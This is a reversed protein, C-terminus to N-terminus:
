QSEPRIVVPFVFLWRRLSCIIIRDYYFHARSTLSEPLDMGGDRYLTSQLNYIKKKKKPSKNKIFRIIIVAM